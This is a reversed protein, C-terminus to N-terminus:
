SIVAQVLPPFVVVFMVNFFRVLGAMSGALLDRCHHQVAGLATMAAEKQRWADPGQAQLGAKIHRYRTLVM